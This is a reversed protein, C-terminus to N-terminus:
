FAVHFVPIRQQNIVDLAQEPEASTLEAEIVGAASKWFDM